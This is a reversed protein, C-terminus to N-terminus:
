SIPTIIVTTPEIPAPKNALWSVETCSETGSTKPNRDFARIRNKAINVTGSKINDRTADNRALENFDTGRQQWKIRQAYPAANIPAETLRPPLNSENKILSCPYWETGNRVSDIIITAPLTNCTDRM